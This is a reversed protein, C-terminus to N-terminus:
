KDVNETWPIPGRRLRRFNDTRRWWMPDVGNEPLGCIRPMEGHGYAAYTVGSRAKVTGRWVGGDKFLVLAGPKLELRNLDALPVTKDVYVIENTASTTCTVVTCGALVGLLVFAM